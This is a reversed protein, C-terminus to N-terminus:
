DDAAAQEKINQEQRRPQLNAVVLSLIILVAGVV